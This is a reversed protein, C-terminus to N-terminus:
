KYNMDLLTYKKTKMNRVQNHIKNLAVFNGKHKVYSRAWIRYELSKMGKMTNKYYKIINEIARSNSTVISYFGLKKVKVNTSIGLIHKIAILVIQDLKQTIEFTHVLRTSSKAVLYFSGEAETFGVLWAKSMIKSASDFNSVKNELLSWVPSIYNVPPKNKIINFILTDKELKNLSTNFLISHAEKFKIYNFQKTTLLPYKDFIPFIVSELIIHDRIRFHAHSGEKEIYINGVKLQTKIFHLIRLNYTNQSLKFTLSWKNNQRVISFTGDGDTFGVLWQYFIDKNESLSNKNIHTANTSFYSILHEVNLRQYIFNSKLLNNWAFQRWTLLIKEETLFLLSCKSGILLTERMSYLKNIIINSYYSLKLKVTWGTGAGNEVLSSLLLLILSPPLLWFSVNNLRPFAMDPSGCHVPLFYNGFGGVMGPM